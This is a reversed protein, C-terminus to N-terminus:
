RSGKPGGDLPVLNELSRVTIDAHASYDDKGLNHVYVTATGAERGALIDFLFDGVMVAEDPSANWRTLLRRIGDASPKPDCMERAVVNVPDFFEMLGCTELTELANDHSNRTLIGLTTGRAHLATLLERSGPQRKAHRAIRLEIAELRRRLEDAHEEPLDALQELIPQGQPLGLEERIADFDHAPVTLTGDMDFIWYTRDALNM